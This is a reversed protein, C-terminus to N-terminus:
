ESVTKFLENNRGYNLIEQYCFKILKNRLDENDGDLLFHGCDEHLDLGGGCYPGLHDPNFCFGIYRYRELDEEDESEEDSHPEKQHVFEEVSSIVMSLHEIEEVRKDLEM